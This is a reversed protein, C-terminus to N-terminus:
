QLYLSRQFEAIAHDTVGTVNQFTLGLPTIRNKAM